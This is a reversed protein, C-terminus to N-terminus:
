SHCYNKEGVDKSIPYGLEKYSLLSLFDRFAKGKVAGTSVGGKPNPFRAYSDFLEDHFLQIGAKGAVLSILKEVKSNTAKSENGQKEPQDNNIEDM